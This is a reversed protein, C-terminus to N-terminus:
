FTHHQVNTFRTKLLCSIEASDQFALGSDVVHIETNAAFGRLRQAQTVTHYSGPPWNRLTAWDQAQRHMAAVVLRVARELTEQHQDSGPNADTAGSQRHFRRFPARRRRLCLVVFTTPGAHRIRCLRGQRLSPM